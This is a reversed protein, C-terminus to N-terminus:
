VGHGLWDDSCDSHSGGGSETEGEWVGDLNVGQVEDDGEDPSRDEVEEWRDRLCVVRHLLGHEIEDRGERIHEFMERKESAGNSGVLGSGEIDIGFVDAGVKDVLQPVLLKRSLM